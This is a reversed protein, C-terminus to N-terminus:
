RPARGTRRAPRRYFGPAQQEQRCGCPRTACRRPPPSRPRVGLGFLDEGAVPNDVALKSRAVSIAARSAAQGLGPPTQASATASTRGIASERASTSMQAVAARPPPRPGHPPQRRLRREYPTVPMEVERSSAVWSANSCRGHLPRLLPPRLVRTGPQDGDRGARSVSKSRLSCARWRRSSATARWSRGPLPECATSVLRRRVGVVREDHQEHATMGRQGSGCLDCERQPRDAQGVVRSM